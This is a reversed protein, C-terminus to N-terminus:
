HSPGGREPGHAVHSQVFAAVDDASRQPIEWQPLHGVKPYVILQAGPIAEAFKQGSGEPIIHDEQGQLVLTPTKIRALVEPTAVALAGPRISMLIQRHGPALQVAAWGDVWSKTVVRKDYVDAKLGQVILPRNDISQLFARGIPYQLLRFALPPAKAPGTQPWGAADVLVLGALRQPHDVAFRWAVGGGMSNGVLTFPTLDLKEAFAEVVQDYGDISAQYDKPARTLGHGPLDLSIVRFQGSLREVWPRWTLFSDGFGHLLVITPRSRDGEDVYHLHVGGPLDVYRSAPLAYRAELKEYPTDPARLSLWVGLPLLVVVALVALATLLLAKGM